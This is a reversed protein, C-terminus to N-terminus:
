SFTLFILSIDFSIKPSAPISDCLCFEFTFFSSFVCSSCENLSEYAFCFNPVQGVSRLINTIGQSLDFSIFLLFCPFPSINFCKAHIKLGSLNIDTSNHMQFQDVFPTLLQFFEDNIKFSKYCM